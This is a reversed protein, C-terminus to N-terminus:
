AAPEGDDPTYLGTSQKTQGGTSATLTGGTRGAPIDDFSVFWWGGDSLASRTQDYPPTGPFQLRATVTAGEPAPGEASAGPTDVPSNSLPSAIDFAM